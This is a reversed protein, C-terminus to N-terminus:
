TNSSIKFNHILLTNLFKPSQVSDGIQMKAKAYLIFLPCPFFDKLAM